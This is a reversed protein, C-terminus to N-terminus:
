IFLKNIADIINFEEDIIALEYSDEIEIDNDYGKLNTCLTNSNKLSPSVFGNGLVLGVKSYDLFFYEQLLPIINEKFVSKLALVKDTSELVKFFYSHGIKHERDLLIEIRENIKSLLKTLNVGEVLENNLKEPDPIVEIFSFRRRLATDLAEVSRDATNMTGIIYINSPVSFNDKSYPLKVEIEEREGKRKDPELLTILEGFISSVNGRNIEDIIFIYKKKNTYQEPEKPLEYDTILHGLISKVYSPNYMGVTDKNLYLRKIYEISAPYDPQENVSNEPNVRFTTGGNYGVKFSKGTATKLIKEGNDIIEQKFQEIVDDITESGEEAKECFQKFLGPKVQYTIQGKDNTEPKIGEIFDEYGLSQHFTTFVIQGENVLKQYTELIEERYNEEEINFSPYITRVALEKTTYTKGTGPPGYLIQNKPTDDEPLLSNIYRQFRMVGSFSDRSEDLAYMANLIETSNYNILGKYNVDVKECWHPLYKQLTELYGEITAIKISDRNEISFHYYENYFIEEANKEMYETSKENGIVQVNYYPEFLLKNAENVNPIEVLTSYGSPLWGRKDGVLARTHTKIPEKIIEVKRSLFGKEGILTNIEENLKKTGSVIKCLAGLKNRGYTIYIYDNINLTNIFNYGQNKATDRHMVCFLQEEFYKILNAKRFKTTKLFTGMSLKYIKQGKLHLKSNSLIEKKPEIIFGEDELLKFSQKGLGGHFENRPLRIGNVYKNAISVVLKPPYKKGNYIVDYTTSHEGKQIGNSDIEEIAKIIHEKTINQPISM